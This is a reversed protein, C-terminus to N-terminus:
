RVDAPATTRSASLTRGGEVRSRQVHAGEGGAAGQLAVLQRAGDRLLPGAAAAELLQYLKIHAVPDHTTAGGGRDQTTALQTEIHQSRLPPKWSSTSNSTLQQSIWRHHGRTRHEGKDQQTIWRHHGRTRHPPWSHNRIHQAQLPPNQFSSHLKTRVAPYDVVSATQHKSHAWLAQKWSQTSAPTRPRKADKEPLAQTLAM